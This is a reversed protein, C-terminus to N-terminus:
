FQHERRKEIIFLDEVSMELAEAIRMGLPTSPTIYGNIIRNIYTQGVGVKKALETQTINKRRIAKSINNDM